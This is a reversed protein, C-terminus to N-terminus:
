PLHFEGRCGCVCGLLKGKLILKRAKALVLNTPMTPYEHVEGVLEPHGALVAEVDWRSAWTFAFNDKTSRARIAQTVADLFVDDPIDAAKKPAFTAAQDAIM